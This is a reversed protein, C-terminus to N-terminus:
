IEEDRGATKLDLKYLDSAKWKALEDSLWPPRMQKEEGSHQVKLTPAVDTALIKRRSESIKAAALALQAMTEPKEGNYKVQEAAEELRERWADLHALEADRIEETYHSKKHEHVLRSVTSLSKIRLDSAIDRFSEGNDVMEAVRAALAKRADSKPPPITDSVVFTGEQNPFL